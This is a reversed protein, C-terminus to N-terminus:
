QETEIVQVDIILDVRESLLVGGTELAANWSLGFDNRNISAWLELGHKTNGYPDQSPGSYDLSFKVEKTVGKITLNGIITGNKINQNQATFNIVPHNASDFFDSSILHNNRDSNNTEISNVTVSASINMNELDGTMSGNFTKFNGRVNTIMLHKIRFGVESHTNDITFTKM